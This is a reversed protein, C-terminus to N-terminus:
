WASTGAMEMIVKRLRIDRLSASLSLTVRLLICLLLCETSSITFWLSYCDAAFVINFNKNSFKVGKSNKITRRALYLIGKKKDSEIMM